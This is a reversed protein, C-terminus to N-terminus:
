YIPLRAIQLLRNWIHGVKTAAARPGQSPGRVPVEDIEDPSDQGDSGEDSDVTPVEHPIRSHPVRSNMYHITKKRKRIGGNKSATTMSLLREREPQLSNSMVSMGASLDKLPSSTSDEAMVQSAMDPEWFKSAVPLERHINNKSAGGVTGNKTVVTLEMHLDKAVVPADVADAHYKGDSSM